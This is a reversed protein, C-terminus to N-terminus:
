DLQKRFRMVSASLLLVCCVGLGIVSPTLDHFDAARLIVGRLIQLFYTVPIGFSLWYIPAPMSERPFMFGSLLISPMLLILTVQLAALQTRAITSVLLGLALATLLFLLSLALLLSLSGAIPVQFVFVMTLLVILIEAFGLLAYPALKGLMLGLPSVPTVFLQELTGHERERVITFATLFITVNQLIIGVLAPVFFHASRLEPNFLLRPRVEIPITWRGVADRAAAVQLADAMPRAVALSQRFGLLNSTNLATIAAQSDSGDIQVEILAQQRSLLRETLDPPIVVGVRARGSTLARRFDDESVVREVVAFTRTNEFAAVLDRGATRGDLDLVVTKIHEIKTDIAFGFIMLQFVPIVLAFILTSRQRRIHAFEKLLIAWFGTM